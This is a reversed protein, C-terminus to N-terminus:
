SQEEALLYRTSGVTRVYKIEYVMNKCPSKAGANRKVSDVEFDMLSLLLAALFCCWCGVYVQLKTM